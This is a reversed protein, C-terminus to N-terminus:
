SQSYTGIEYIVIKESRSMFIFFFAENPKINHSPIEIVLMLFVM